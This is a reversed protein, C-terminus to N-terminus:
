EKVDFKKRGPTMEFVPEEKKKKRVSGSLAHIRLSLSCKPFVRGERGEKGADFRKINVSLFGRRKAAGGNVVKSVISILLNQLFTAREEGKRRGKKEETRSGPV